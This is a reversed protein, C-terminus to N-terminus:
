DRIRILKRTTSERGSLVDTVRLTVAHLGGPLDSLPLDVAIIASGTGDRRDRWSVRPPVPASSLGLRRGLWAVARAPFADRDARRISLDVGFQRVGEADERLGGVEAYLGITDGEAMVLDGHPEMVPDERGRPLTGRFPKALLPDSLQPAGPEPLELDIAYRSRAALGTGSAMLEMSYVRGGPTVALEHHLRGTQRMAHVESAVSDLGAMTEADLIWLGTRYSTDDNTAEVGPVPADIRLIVRDNAPFRTVQHPLAELRRITRPAFSSRARPNDLRWGEGPAPSPMPGRTLLDEQVFALADPDYHETLGGQRLPGSAWTRTRATPVGYRVTLEELDRGWRQMGGVLPTMELIRSWVHRAMHEARRENGPTLYLPDAHRWLREEARAREPESLTRYFRQDDHSLIWEVDRIAAQQEPALGALGRAFLREAATDDAAAHLSFGLLLPGWVSDRALADYTRAASVAEAARDDEVLYRVLPGTTALSHGEYSFAMRLAEIAERRADIVRPVEPEPERPTGTTFTLCFRGVIEDCPGGPSDGWRLPALSRVLREFRTEARRATRRIRELSDDPVAPQLQLAAAILIANM